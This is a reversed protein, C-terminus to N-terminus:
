TNCNKMKHRKSLNLKIGVLSLDKEVMKIWTSSPRGRKRQVLQLSEYLALTVPTKKDLRM